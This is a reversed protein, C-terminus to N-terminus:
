VNYDFCIDAVHIAFFPPKLIAEPRIGDGSGDDAFGRAALQAEVVARVAAEGIM